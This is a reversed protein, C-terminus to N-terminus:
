SARPHADLYGQLILVAAVRDVSKRPARRGALTRHAEASSLREDWMEVEIGVRRAIEDALRRALASAGGEAGSLSIPNGVVIREVGYEQVLAELRALFDGDTRRDFTALGQATIGLPDSVALGVRREGPDIALIRGPM